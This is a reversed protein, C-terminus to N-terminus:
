SGAEPLWGAALAPLRFFLAVVRQPMSKYVPGSYVIKEGYAVGRAALALREGVPQKNTPHINDPDGYDTIVAMATRSATQSTLLQAERLEPLAKRNTLSLSCRFLFPFEGQGWTRRWGRILTPFLARYRIPNSANAKGQYWIVGRIAYPQLPAIMGNYLVRM